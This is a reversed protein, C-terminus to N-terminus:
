DNTILDYARRYRDTQRSFFAKVREEEKRVHPLEALKGVLWKGTLSDKTDREM